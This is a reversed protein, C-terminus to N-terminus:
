YCSYRSPRGKGSKPGKNKDFGKVPSYLPHGPERFVESGHEDYEIEGGEEDDDDVEKATYIKNYLDRAQKFAREALETIEKGKRIYTHFADQLPYSIDKQLVPETYALRLWMEYHNLVERVRVPNSIRNVLLRNLMGYTEDYTSVKYEGMPRFAFNYMKVFREEYEQRKEETAQALANAREAAEDSIKPKKPDSM